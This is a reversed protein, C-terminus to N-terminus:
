TLMIKQYERLAIPEYKLGHEIHRSSFPKLNILEAAFQDHNRQRKSIVQFRSATFRYKPENKEANLIQNSGQQKGRATLLIKMLELLRFFHKKPM